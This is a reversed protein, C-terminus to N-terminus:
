SARGMPEGAHPKGRNDVMVVGGKIVVVPDLFYWYGDLPNGKLILVDGEKGAELTGLDKDRDIFAASNRGMIQVLDIPSFMLNLV